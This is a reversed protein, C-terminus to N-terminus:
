TNDLSSANVDFFKECVLSTASPVKSTVNDLNGMTTSLIKDIKPKYNKPKPVKSVYM